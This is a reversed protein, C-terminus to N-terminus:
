KLWCVLSLTFNDQVQQSVQQNLEVGSSELSSMM